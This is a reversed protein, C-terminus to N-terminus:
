SLVIDCYINYYPTIVGLIIYCCNERYKNKTRCGRRTGIKGKKNTRKSIIKKHNLDNYNITRNLADQDSNQIQDFRNEGTIGVYLLIVTGFIILIYSSEGAESSQGFMAIVAILGFLIDIVLVGYRLSKPIKIKKFIGPSWVCSM